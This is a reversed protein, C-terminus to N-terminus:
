KSDLELASSYLSHQGTLVDSNRKPNGVKIIGFNDSLLVRRIYVFAGLPLIILSQIISYLPIFITVWSWKSGMLISQIVFYMVYCVLALIPFYAILNTVKFLFLIYILVFTYLVEWPHNRLNQFINVVFLRFSGSAWSLRQKIIGFVSHPVDTFFEFPIYGVEFGLKKAIIGAEIDGGQFFMSHRAYVKRLISKKGIIAAGSTLYPFLIRAQMAIAYEVFQIKEIITVPTDPIINLSAIDLNRQVLTSVLTGVDDICYTDGDLMLIYDSDIMDLGNSKGHLAISFLLWPTKEQDPKIDARFLKFKHANSLKELHDNFEKSEQNTTLLYVKDGYKELFHVNKLYDLSNFVPVLISYNGVISTEIKKKPIRLTIFVVVFDILAVFLLGVIWYVYTFDNVFDM